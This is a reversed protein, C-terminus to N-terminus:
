SENLGGKSWQPQSFKVDIRHPANQCKTCCMVSNELSLEGGMSRFVKEHPRLLFEPPLPPAGCVECHGGYCIGGTLIDASHWEGGCRECLAKRTPIEDLLKQKRKDSIKRIATKKM